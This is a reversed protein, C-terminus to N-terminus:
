NEFPYFLISIGLGRKATQFSIQIDPRNVMLFIFPNFGVDVQGDQGVLQDM